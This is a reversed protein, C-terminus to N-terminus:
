KLSELWPDLEDWNIPFIHKSGPVLKANVRAGASELRRTIDPLQKNWRFNDREAIRLFIPLGHMAPLPESQKLRGPMAVVGFYDGPDQIALELASSGGTSIGLLLSKGDKISPDTQLGKILGALNVNNETSPSTGDWLIPVAIVWGRDTFDKGLWFQTRVIFEQGSGAPIMLALPWPGEGSNHPSFVLVRIESGDDINLTREAAAGVVPCFILLFLLLRLVPM